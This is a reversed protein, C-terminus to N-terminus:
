PHIRAVGYGDVSGRALGGVVIKGDSQLLVSEAFDNFGFFDIIQKGANAFTTDLTGNSNFRAVAFDPNSQSSSRGAVVIKGDTQLAVGLASDGGTSFATTAAGTTGFAGDPSGDANLRRVAFQSAIAPAVGIDVSGVLVLKGDAQLGLGEGVRADALTLVGGTGFAADLGGNADYRVVDTHDSGPFTGIPEGSVIIAGNSQLVINRATNTAAGINTTLKGDASFTTDLTGNANYRAVAFDSFDTASTLPVEGAVVIKGDPQIAIAYANGAVGTVVKGGTGFSADLSGNAAYRALAFNAPGGPGATGTYGAVVIKGDPQVAVALSEEQENAVMDTTVKGDTDFTTDLSGDANFRALVFDTFTGGVMVIKGDPQLAMASRDGGFATLAAKGDTDFTIDLAGPTNVPPPTDDDVITLVATSQAGLTACGGPQSLALSITEAPETLSDLAVPIRVFKPETEGDAFAVSTNVRTYDAGNVATGDTTTFTATVAGASGGTRSISVAPFVVPTEDISFSAASFQLTGASGAAPVCAAPAVPAAIPIVSDPRNTAELGEFVVTTGGFTIPDRLYSYVGSAQRDEVSGGGRRNEVQAEAVSRLTFEEGVAISSLDLDQRITGIMKLCAETGLGFAPNAVDRTVFDFKGINWLEQTGPYPTAFRHWENKTGSLGTVASVSFFSTQTLNSWAQVDLMVLGSVQTHADDTGFTPPFLNFDYACIEVATVTFHMKADAARKIFSQRQDIRSGGGIPNPDGPQNIGGLKGFPAIAAVGYTVGDPSGFVFGSALNDKPIVGDFTPMETDLLPNQPGFHGVKNLLGGIQTGSGDPPPLVSVPGRNPYVTFEWIRVPDNRTLPPVVVVQAYSFGTVPASVSSAGFIANAVLEWQSQANTKYLAPTNGAPVLSPDFPMTITVPLAFATGHPTFAYMSGSPALGVPLPPAGTSSQEVKIEVNNALAGAPVVVSSGNPGLATGGAAGIGAPPPPPPPTVVDGDSGEGGGCAALGLFVCTIAVRAANLYKKPM